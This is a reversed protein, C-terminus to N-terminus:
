NALGLDREVEAMPVTGARGARIDALRQEALYFDELDGLCEIIAEQLYSEKSRGTAKALAELRQEIDDPLQIALM